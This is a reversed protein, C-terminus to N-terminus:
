YTGIRPGYEEGTIETFRACAEAYVAGEAFTMRERQAGVTELAARFAAVDVDGAPAATLARLKAYAGTNAGRASRKRQGMSLERARGMATERGGAWWGCFTVM